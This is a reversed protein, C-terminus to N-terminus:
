FGESELLLDLEEPSSVNEMRIVDKLMNGVSERRTRGYWWSIPVPGETQILINTKWLKGPVEEVLLEFEPNQKRFWRELLKEMKRTRM